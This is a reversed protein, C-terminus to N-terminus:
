AIIQTIENKTFIKVIDLMVVYENDLKYIGNVFYPNYKSGVNPVPLIKNEPIELVSLVKDAVVGLNYKKEDIQLEMIIIVTDIDAQKEPMDFKLRLDIVPLINGRVNVVGKIFNAMDPVETPKQHEIVEYAIDVPVSFVEDALKFIVYNHTQM